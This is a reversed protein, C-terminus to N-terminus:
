CEDQIFSTGMSKTLYATYPCKLAMAKLDKVQIWFLRLIYAVM